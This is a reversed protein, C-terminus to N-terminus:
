ANQAVVVVSIEAQNDPPLKLTVKHTGLTRIPGDIMVSKRDLPFGRTKLHEAIQRTTISGFLRGDDGAACPIQIEVGKLQEVLTVAEQRQSELLTRKKELQRELQRKAQNTGPAALRKPFLYNRAFGPTVRKQEGLQGVHPVDTLLIVEM